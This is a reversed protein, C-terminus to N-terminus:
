KMSLQVGWGMFDLSLFILSRNEDKSWLKERKKTIKSLSKKETKADPGSGAVTSETQGLSSGGVVVVLGIVVGHNRDKGWLECEYPPFAKWCVAM